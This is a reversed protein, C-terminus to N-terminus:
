NEDGFPRARGMEHWRLNEAHELCGGALTAGGSKQGRKEGSKHDAGRRGLRDVETQIDKVARRAVDIGAASPLEDCLTAVDADGSDDSIDSINGAGLVLSRACRDVGAIRGTEAHEAVM